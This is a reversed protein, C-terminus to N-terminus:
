TGSYEGMQEGDLGVDKSTSAADGITMIHSTPSEYVSTVAITSYLRRIVPPRSTSSHDAIARSLLIQSSTTDVAGPHAARNKIITSHYSIIPM